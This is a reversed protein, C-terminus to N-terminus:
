FLVFVEGSFDAVSRPVCNALEGSTGVAVHGIAV